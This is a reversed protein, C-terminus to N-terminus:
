LPARTRAAERAVAQAEQERQAIREQIWADESLRGRGEIPAVSDSQGLYRSAQVTGGVAFVVLLVLAPLMVWAQSIPQKRDPTSSGTGGRQRALREAAPVGKPLRLADEEGESAGWNFNNKVESANPMPGMPRDYRSNAHEGPMVFLDWSADAFAAITDLLSTEKTEASSGSSADTLQKSSADTLEEEQPARMRVVAPQRGFSTVLRPRVAHLAAAHALALAHLTLVRAATMKSVVHPNPREGPNPKQPLACAM